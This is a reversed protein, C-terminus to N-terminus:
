KLIEQIINSFKQLLKFIILSNKSIIKKKEPITKKSNSIKKLLLKHKEVIKKDKSPIPLNLLNFAIEVIAKAQLNNLSGLLLKGQKKDSQLIFKLFSSEKQVNNM